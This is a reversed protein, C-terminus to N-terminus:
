AAARRKSSPGRMHSDIGCFRDGVHQDVMLERPYLDPRLDCRSVGYEAEVHLVYEGPIQRSRTVWNSITPQSVGLFDALAEQSGARIVALQLAEFRTMTTIM